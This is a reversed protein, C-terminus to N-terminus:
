AFIFDSASLTGSLGTINILMDDTASVGATADNIYLYTGAAAGSSVTLVVGSLGGGATSAAIAGIGAYVAALDAATTLTQAGALTMGTGVDQAASGAGWTSFSLKDTGAVFDTIRVIGATGASQKLIAAFSTAKDTDFTEAFKFTDNGAGGTLVDAQGVVGGAAASGVQLSDAGSGGKLTDAKISGIATLKGTFAAADIASGTGTAKLNDMELDQSGTIVFKVNDQNVLDTTTTAGAEKGLLNAASGSSVVNITSIGAFTSTGTKVGGALTLTTASEGVSNTISFTSASNNVSKAISYSTTGAAGSFAVAGAAEVSFSKIGATGSGVFDSVDAAVGAGSFGLVEVGKVANIATKLALSITTDALLLKDGSGAGLDVVDQASFQGAAFKATDNGSGGTFSLQNDATQDLTVGGSNASANVTKLNSLAAMSLSLSKDGGVSLAGLQGGSNSLVVTSGSGSTNVAFSSAASALDLTLDTGVGNLTVGAGGDLKVTSTAGGTTGLVKSLTLSQAAATKFTFVSGDALAVPNSVTAATVGPLYSLDLSGGSTLTGKEFQLVEINSLSGLYMADLADAAANYIKLTDVGAGGDVQDAGVLFKTAGSNDAIFVDNSAGGALRDINSTLVYTGGGGMNNQVTTTLSALTSASTASTLSAADAKVASLWSKVAALATGNMAAYALIESNTDLAGTFATAAAVKNAIITADSGQAGKNVADAANGLTLKGQDLLAVWYNLGVVEPEHGFLNLYVANILQTNNMNAYLSKYESSQAFTNLLDSSSGAYASWYALGAVDAPRNFFAVYANQIQATTLPM